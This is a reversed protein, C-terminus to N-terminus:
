IGPQEPVGMKLVRVVKDIQRGLLRVRGRREGHGVTWFDEAKMHKTKMPRWTRPGSVSPLM